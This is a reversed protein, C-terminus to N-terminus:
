VPDSGLYTGRPSLSDERKWTDSLDPLLEEFQCSAENISKIQDKPGLSTVGGM